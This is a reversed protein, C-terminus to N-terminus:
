AQLSRVYTVGEQLFRDAVADPRRQEWRQLMREFHASFDEVALVARLQEQSEQCHTEAIARAVTSPDADSQRWALVAAVVPRLSEAMTDVHDAYFVEMWARLKQPTAQHRRARDSEKTLVRQLTDVVLARHTALIAVERAVQAQLKDHAAALVTASEALAAEASALATRAESELQTLADVRARAEVEVLARSAELAAREAQWTAERSAQEARAVALQEAADAAAQAAVSAQQRAEADAARAEVAQAEADAHAARAETVQATWTAVEAALHTAAAQLQQRLDAETETALAAALARETQEAALATQAGDLLEQLHLAMAAADTAKTEAAALAGSLDEARQDAMRRAQDAVEVAALAARAADDEVSPAPAPAPTPEVQKDIVDNVRDAPVMNVPVYPSDGGEIPNMNELARIENPTIAGIMFLKNYFEARGAADGRLLGEVVHEISQQSRELSSVLKLTLEQQWTQLWHQLTTQFYDITQQEINSFTARSLDGIKHPPINFWRAIETVQFQRTELFQADEPPIGLRQYKMGEEVIIFKHARDVGQHRSEISEKFNKRAIESMKNPHEFVGGFTAGQGFFTGGFREAAIGLGISERAKAIVSYGTMGDWGLGHIHLMDMPGLRTEGGSPNSIIYVLSGRDRDIRVRDPTRPWLYKPRGGGDREIEAFGGGWTLAHAQLTRRFTVSSMEPNPADHLLRYLPHSYYREKGGNPLRKYLVLPLASVDGSILNVASWVASLNLATAENVAVGAGSTPQAWLKGFESATLPGLRFSRIRDWLTPATRRVIARETYAM